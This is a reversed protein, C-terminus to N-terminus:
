IFCVILRENESVFKFNRITDNINVSNDTFWQTNSLGQIYKFYLVVFGESM